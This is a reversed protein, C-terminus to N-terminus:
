RNHRDLEDEERLVTKGNVKRKWKSKKRKPKPIGEELAKRAKELKKLKRLDRM